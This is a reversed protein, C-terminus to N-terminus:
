CCTSLCWALPLKSYRLALCQLRRECTQINQGHRAFGGFVPPEALDVDYMGGKKKSALTDLSQLDPGHGGRRYAHQAAEYTASDKSSGSWPYQNWIM